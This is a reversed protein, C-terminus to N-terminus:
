AVAELQRGGAAWDVLADAARKAAGTRYGYVLDLARERAAVDEPRLELARAVAAPIESARNVQIGVDAADWFRLGHHVDRRYQPPNLVVVPRGTAAFLFLASTNDAIFVDARRLIDRFDPVVEIERRRYWPVLRELMRPHGHGLVEYTRTLEGLYARAWSFGSTAEPSITADFHSSIAVVSGAHGERAPLIDLIPSGVIEVRARPYAARDRSAPHPGPHLFLEVTERRQGGAYSPHRGSSAMGAYSQGAGHEMLALRTRGNREARRLDGISATLTPVDGAGAGTAAAIGHSRFREVVDAGIAIARGRAEPPLAGYVAALHDAFHVESALVDIM